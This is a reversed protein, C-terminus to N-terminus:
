PKDGIRTNTRRACGRLCHNRISHGVWPDRIPLIFGRLCSNHISLVFASEPQDTFVWERQRRAWFVLLLASSGVIAIATGVLSKSTM